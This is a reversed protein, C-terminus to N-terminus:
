LFPALLLMLCCDVTGSPLTVLFEEGFYKSLKKTLLCMSLHQFCGLKVSLSRQVQPEELCGTWISVCTEKVFNNVISWWAYLIDRQRRHVTRAPTKGSSLGSTDRGALNLTTQPSISLPPYRFKPHFWNKLSLLKSFGTLMLVSAWSCRAM